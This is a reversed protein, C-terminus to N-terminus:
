ISGHFFAGNSSAAESSTVLTLACSSCKSIFLGFILTSPNLSAKEAIVLEESAGACGAGADDLVGM